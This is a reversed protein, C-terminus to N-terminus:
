TGTHTRKHAKLHSSKTYIKNCGDEDCRHSKRNQKSDNSIRNTPSITLLHQPIKATTTNNHIHQKTSTPRFTQTASTKGISQHRGGSISANSTAISAWQSQSITTKEVLDHWRNLAEKQIQDYGDITNAVNSRWLWTNTDLNFPAQSNTVSSM